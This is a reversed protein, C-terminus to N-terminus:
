YGQSPVGFGQAMRAGNLPKDGLPPSRTYACLVPQTFATATVPGPPATPCNVSPSNLAKQLQEMPFDTVTHPLKGQRVLTLNAQRRYPQGAHEFPCEGGGTNACCAGWKNYGPVLALASAYCFHRGMSSEDTIKFCERLLAGPLGPSTQEARITLPSATRQAKGAFSRERSRSRSRSGREQSRRKPNGAGDTATPGPSRGREAKTFGAAQQPGKAAIMQIMEVRLAAVESKSQAHRLTDTYRELTQNMEAGATSSTDISCAALESQNTCFFADLQIAPLGDKLSKDFRRMYKCFLRMSDEYRKVGITVTQGADKLYKMCKWVQNFAGAVQWTSWGYVELSTKIFRQFTDWNNILDIGTEGVRLVTALTNIRGGKASQMGCIVTFDHALVSTAITKAEPDVRAGASVCEDVIYDTIRTRLSDSVARMFKATDRTGAQRVGRRLAKQLRVAGSSSMIHDMNTTTISEVVHMSKGSADKRMAVGATQFEAEIAANTALDEAKEMPIVEGSKEMKSQMLDKEAQRALAAAKVIDAATIGGGPGGWSGGSQATPPGLLKNLHKCITYHFIDLLANMFAAEAILPARAWQTWQAPTRTPTLGDPGCIRPLRRIAPWTNLRHGEAGFAEQVWFNLKNLCAAQDLLLRQFLTPWQKDLGLVETVKTLVLQAFSEQSVRVTSARHFDLTLSGGSRLTGATAVAKNEDDQTVLQTFMHNTVHYSTACGPLNSTFGPHNAQPPAQAVSFAAGHADYHAQNHMPLTDLVSPPGPRTWLYPGSQAQPARQHIITQQPSYLRHAVGSLATRRDPPGARSASHSHQGQPGTPSHRGPWPRGIQGPSQIHATKARQYAVRLEEEHKRRLGQM